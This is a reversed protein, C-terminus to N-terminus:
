DTIVVWKEAVSEAGKQGRHRVHLYDLLCSTPLLSDFHHQLVVTGGHSMVAFLANVCALSWFLSVALWLRDEPGLHLREGIHWGNRILSGQCLSAATRSWIPSTRGRFGASRPTMKVIIPSFGFWSTRNPIRSHDLYCAM